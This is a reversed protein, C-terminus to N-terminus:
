GFLIKSNADLHSIGGGTSAGEGSLQTMVTYQRFTYFSRTGDGLVNLIPDIGDRDRTGGFIGTFTAEDGDGGLLTGGVESGQPGFLSGVIDARYNFRDRGAYTFRGTLGGNSALYGAGNWQSCCTWYDADNNYETAEGSMAFLGQAFDLSFPGDGVVSRPFNGLPSAVAFLDIDYTASGTRPVGATTTPYGYVFSDFTFANADDDIRTQRQWLGATIYKTGG